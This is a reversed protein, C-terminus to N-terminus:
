KDAKGNKEEKIASIMVETRPYEKDYDVRSGDMSAVVKSNDDDLVRLHVLIDLLAEELNVLDVRRRTSMYFVAKVNVPGRIPEDFHPVYWRCQEEYDKYAKSPVIFPKGTRPNVFVRQSNKKTKPDLEIVLKM